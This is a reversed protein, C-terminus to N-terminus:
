SVANWCSFRTPVWAPDSNGFNEWLVSVVAGSRTPSLLASFWCTHFHTWDPAVALAQSSPVGSVFNLTM